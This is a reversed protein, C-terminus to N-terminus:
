TSQQRQPKADSLKLAPQFTAHVTRNMLPQLPRFNDVMNKEDEGVASYLLSRFVALQSHDVEIPKKMMIWTVSETLPPTTLSGAYTWYDNCSPLFCSPDFYNFETLSDKYRVSPLIDVLKQLKSHHQGVKLFVGIVALGNEEMIAEEFSQYRSCNWHVLHLEAPFVKSDVTHESGWDNNVGWHFHFQKLRYPNELPGGSVVSKNTCDDYEVLFAYGNNWVHLCTNPDYQTKIPTLQPHFISDRVRIDIPSQRAGGPVETPGKWLPHVAPVLSLKYSCATINCMRAPVSSPARVRPDRGAWGPGLLPALLRRCGRLVM